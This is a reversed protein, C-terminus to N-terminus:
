MAQGALPTVRQYSKGTGALFDDTQIVLGTSGELGYLSHRSRRSSQQLFVFRFFFQLGLCHRFAPFRKFRAPHRRSRWAASLAREFFLLPETAFPADGPACKGHKGAKREM